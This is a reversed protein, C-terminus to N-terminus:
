VSHGIMVPKILTRCQVIISRAIACRVSNRDRFNSIGQFFPERPQWFRKMERSLCSSCSRDIYKHISLNSIHYNLM